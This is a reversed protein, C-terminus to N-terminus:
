LALWNFRVSEGIHPHFAHGICEGLGAILGNGFFKVVIRLSGTRKRASIEDDLQGTFGHYLRRVGHSGRLQTGLTTGGTWDIELETMFTTRRQRDFIPWRLNTVDEITAEFQLLKQPLTRHTL